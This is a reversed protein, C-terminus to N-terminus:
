LPSAFVVTFSSHRIVPTFDSHHIAFDSGRRRRSLAALPIVFDLHRIDFSHRFGFSSVLSRVVRLVEDNASGSEKTMQFEDNTM